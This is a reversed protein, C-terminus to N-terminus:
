EVFAEGAEFGLGCVDLIEQAVVRHYLSLYQVDKVLYVLAYVVNIPSGSVDSPM